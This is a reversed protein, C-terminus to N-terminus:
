DPFRDNQFKAHAKKFPDHAKKPPTMHRKKSFFAIKKITMDNKSPTM